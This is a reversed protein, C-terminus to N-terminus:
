WPPSPPAVGEEGGKMSVEGAGGRVSGLTWANIHTQVSINCLHETHLTVQTMVTDDTTYETFRFTSNQSLAKQDSLQQGEM